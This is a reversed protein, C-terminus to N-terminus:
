NGGRKFFDSLWASIVLLAVSFIGSAKALARENRGIREELAEIDGSHIQLKEYHTKQYTDIKTVKVILEDLKQEMRLSQAAHEDPTM